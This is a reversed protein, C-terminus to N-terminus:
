PAEVEAKNATIGGLRTIEEVTWVHDSIEAKM